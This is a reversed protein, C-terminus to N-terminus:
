DCDIVTLTEVHPRSIIPILMPSPASPHPVDIRETLYSVRILEVTKLPSPPTDTTGDYGLTNYKYCQFRAINTAIEEDDHRGVGDYWAWFNRWSQWGFMKIHDEFSPPRLADTFNVPQKKLTFLNLETDDVLTGILLHRKCRPYKMRMPFMTWKQELMFFRKFLGLFSERPIIRGGYSTTFACEPCDDPTELSNILLLQMLILLLLAMTEQFLSVDPTRKKAKGSPGGRRFIDWIPYPLCALHVLLMDLQFTGLYLHAWIGLQMFCLVFHSIGRIKIPNGLPLCLMAGFGMEAFFAMRSLLKLLLDPCELTNQAVPNFSTYGEYQLMTSVADANIVYAEFSKHAVSFLYMSGLQISLAASAVSTVPERRKRFLEKIHHLTFSGDDLRCLSDPLFLSWMMIHGLFVEGRTGIVVNRRLTGAHIFCCLFTSFRTNWGVAICCASIAQILFLIIYGTICGDDLSFHLVFALPDSYLSQKALTAPWIGKNSFFTHLGIFDDFPQVRDNIHVLISIALGVRLIFLSCHDIGYMQQKYLM